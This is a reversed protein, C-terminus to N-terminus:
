LEHDLLSRAGIGFVPDNVLGRLVSRALEMNGALIHWFGLLIRAKPRDNRLPSPSALWRELAKVMEDGATPDHFALLIFNENAVDIPFRLGSSQDAPPMEPIDPMGGKTLQRFFDFSRALVPIDLAAPATDFVNQDLAIITRIARAVLTSHGQLAYAALNFREVYDERSLDTDGRQDKALVGFCYQVVGELYSKASKLKSCSVSLASISGVTLEASAFFQKLMEDVARVADSDALDVDLVYQHMVRDRWLIIKHRGNGAKAVAESLGDTPIEQGNLTARTTDLALIETLLGSSRITEGQRAALRGAIVLEPSGAPHTNFIHDRLQDLSSFVQGCFECLPPVQEPGYKGQDVGDLLPDLYGTHWFGM